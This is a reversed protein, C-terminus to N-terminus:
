GNEKKGRWRADNRQRALMSREESTMRRWRNRIAQITEAKPKRGRMSRSHSEDRKKRSNPQLSAANGITSLAAIEPRGLERALDLSGETMRDVGLARRWVRVTRWTTGWHHAIAIAAEKRVARVLDGTLVMAPRGPSAGNRIGLPWMIPGRDSWSHVRILGRMECQIEDGVDVRPPNYPGYRIERNPDSIMFAKALSNETRAELPLAKRAGQAAPWRKGDLGHSDM